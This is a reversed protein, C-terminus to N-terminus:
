LFVLESKDKKAADEIYLKHGDRLRSDVSDYLRIAQRVLSTKTMGRDNALREVVAMEATTLNLVMSQKNSSKTRSPAPM